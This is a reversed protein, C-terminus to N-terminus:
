IIKKDKIIDAKCIYDVLILEDCLTVFILAFLKRLFDFFDSFKIEWKQKNM